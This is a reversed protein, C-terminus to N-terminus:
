SKSALLLQYIFDTLPKYDQKYGAFMAQLYRERDEKKNLIGWNAPNVNFAITIIDTVIRIVRGNGERFPHIMTLESSVYALLEALEELEVAPCYSIKNFIEKDIRKMESVINDAPPFPFGEKSININRYEGAWDYLDSFIIRHLLIIKSSHVPLYYEPFTKLNELVRKYAISLLYSEYVELEERTTIGLRNYPVNTEQHYILQPNTSRYNEWPNPMTEEELPHEIQKEFADILIRSPKKGEYLRGTASDRYWYKYSGRKGTRMSYGYTKEHLKTVDVLM